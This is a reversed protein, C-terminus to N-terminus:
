LGQGKWREWSLYIFPGGCELMGIPFSVGDRLRTHRDRKIAVATTFVHAEHRASHYLVNTAAKRLDLMCDTAM